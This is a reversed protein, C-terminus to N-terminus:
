HQVTGLESGGFFIGLHNPIKKGFLSYSYFLILTLDM